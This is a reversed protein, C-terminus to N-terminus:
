IKFEGIEANQPTIPIYSVFFQNFTDPDTADM